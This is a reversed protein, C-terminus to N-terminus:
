KKGAYSTSEGGKGGRLSHTEKKKKRVYNADRRRRGRRESDKKGGLMAETGSLYCGLDISLNGASGWLSRLSHGRREVSSCRPSLGEASSHMSSNGKKPYFTKRVWSGGGKGRM